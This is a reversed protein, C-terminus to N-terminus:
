AFPGRDYTVGWRVTWTEDPALWKLSRKTVFANPPCTMPELAVALGSRTGRMYNRPTFVHVFGFNEDMWLSVRRGDPAELSHTSRGDVIRVEGYAADLRLSGVMKGDTLDQDTGTLPMEVFPILRQTPEFRTRADVTLFLQEPPVDGIRFYPHAGFGFPAKDRGINHATHTVELGQEVLEYTVTTEILYPYGHQPYITAALTVASETHDKLLYPTFRLLGHIANNFRKETIDLHQPQGDLVWMGEDIRNPWPAAVIGNAHPTPIDDGYPETLDLGDIQFQRLSAAVQTVTARAVGTETPRSIAFQEGTPSPV